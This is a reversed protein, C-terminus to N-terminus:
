VRSLLAKQLEEVRWQLFASCHRSTAKNRKPWCANFDKELKEKYESFIKYDSYIEKIKNQYKECNFDNKLKIRWYHIYNLTDIKSEIQKKFGHVSSIYM